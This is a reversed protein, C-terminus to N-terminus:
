YILSKLFEANRENDYLVELVKKRESINYETFTKGALSQISARFDLATEAHHCLQDLGSGSDGAKNLLCHRGVFLAHLLKIKVGTNNFSPIVNVQANQILNELVEPTPNAILQVKKGAAFLKLRKSPNYGTIIFSLSIHPHIDNILWFVVKENESVSLNGHYLCYDGIGAISTVQKWPLFVPLFHVPQSPFKNKYYTEDTKSVALITTTTSLQTEYHKLLFSERKFYIRDLLSSTARALQRYYEHEINHLRLFVKRGKLEGSSLFYSCHVGELLIPFDDKKLQQLLERDKRSSIIYPLGPVLGKIGTMRKYYIVHVCYKELIPQTGRGYEFCHLHILIGMKHLAVIKYFVDFLGGYNAPYPVEFCVIHLHKEM